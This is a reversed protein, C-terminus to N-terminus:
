VVKGCAVLPTLYVALLDWVKVLTMQLDSWHQPWWLDFKSFIIIKRLCASNDGFNGLIIWFLTLSSGEHGWLTESWIQGLTLPKAGSTMLRFIIMKWPFTKENIVKKSILSVFIFIVGDHWGRQAPESYTSKSRLVQGWIYKKDEFTSRLDLDSWSWTM